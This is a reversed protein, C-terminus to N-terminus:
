DRVEGGRDEIMERVHLVREWALRKRQYKNFLVTYLDELDELPPEEHETWEDEDNHKSKFCWIGDLLQARVERRRGDDTKYKWVHLDRTRRSM